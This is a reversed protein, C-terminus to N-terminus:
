IFIKRSFLWIKKSIKEILSNYQDEDLKIMYKLSLQFLSYTVTNEESFRENLSSVLSNLYPIFIAKKFYSQPDAHVNIRRMQKKTIGPMTIKIESQTLSSEM